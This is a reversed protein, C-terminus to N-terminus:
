HQQGGHTTTSSDAPAVDFQEDLIILSQGDAHTTFDGGPVQLSDKFVQVRICIMATKTRDDQGLLFAEANQQQQEKSLQESQASVFLRNEGLKVPLEDIIVEEASTNPEQKAFVQQGNLRVVLNDDSVGSQDYSFRIKLSYHGAAAVSVNQPAGPKLWESIRAYTWVTGLCVVGIVLVLFPRM